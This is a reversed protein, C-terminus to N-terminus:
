IYGLSSTDDQHEYQVLQWVLGAPRNLPEPLNSCGHLKQMKISISVCVCKCYIHVLVWDLIMRKRTKISAGVQYEQQEVRLSLPTGPCVTGQVCWGTHLLNKGQKRKLSLATFTAGNNLQQGSCPEECGEKSSSISNFNFIYDM